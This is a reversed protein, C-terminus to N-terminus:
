PALGPYPKQVATTPDDVVVPTPPNPEPANPDYGAPPGPPPGGPPPQPLPERYPYRPDGPVGTIADPVTLNPEGGQGTRPFPSPLAPTAPSGIQPDSLQSPLLVNPDLGLDSFAADIFPQLFQGPVLNAVYQRFFPGTSVAESLSLGFKSVLRVSQALDEKRDDLMKLVGNLKELAPKLSDKNDAVLGSVQRALASIDTSIAALTQSESSLQAMLDNTNGVLSVIQDSRERLVGTVKNSDALLRRLETDRKNLTESFRGLGDVALRLDAPTDKFTDALTLLAENLQNTNLGEVTKSLDGLATPLEYPSSTRAAPIPGSLEGDGLSSVELMRAGLLTETKIAAESREGLRIDRDVTFDVLVRAGDLKVDTVDGVRFGAVQVPAGATLGGAEAFYASYKNDTNLFPLQNLSLAAAVVAATAACGVAGVIKPNYETLPKM